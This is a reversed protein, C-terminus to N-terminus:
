SPCGAPPLYTVSILDGSDSNWFYPTIILLANPNNNTYPNDLYFWRGGCINGATVIARFVPTATNTGAGTVKIAGNNIALATTASGNGNGQLATGSTTTGVVGSGSAAVGYVGIAGTGSNATGWVGVGNNAGTSYIGNPGS